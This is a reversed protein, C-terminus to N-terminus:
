LGEGRRRPLLRRGPSDADPQIGHLPGLCSRCYGGISPLLHGEDRRWAHKRGVHNGWPGGRHLPRYLAGSGNRSPRYRGHSGPLIERLHARSTRSRGRAGPGGRHGPFRRRIGGGHGSHPKRCSLVQCRQQPPQGAGPTIRDEDAVVYPSETPLKLEVGHTLANQRYSRLSRGLLRDARCPKPSLPLDRGTELRAVDLLQDVLRSLHEAREHIIGLYEQRDESSTEPANVLLESFGLIASLPTQFEHAATSVFEGRLRDIERQSSVDVLIAILGAPLGNEDRFTAKDFLVQRRAGDARTFEREYRCIGPAQFLDQDVRAHCAADEAPLLEFCTRGAIDTRRFGTFEEFAQNCGLYRGESDKFYVPVPLADMLTSLFNLQTALRNEAQRRLEVEAALGANSALLAERGKLVERLMHNFAAALQGIEDKGDHPVSQELHGEAAKEAAATLQRLPRAIAASLPFALLIGAVMALFTITLAEDTLVEVTDHVPRASIGLRVQGLGGRAVPVAIDYVPGLETALHRIAFEQEPSLPNVDLLETPFDEGFTHALVEGPHPGLFFVYVIDRETNKPDHAAIRLALPDRALIPAVSSQAIHKAISVGRKQLEEHLDDSLHWRIFISVSGGLLALLGAIALLIRLRLTLHGM